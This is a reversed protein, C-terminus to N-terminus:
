NLSFYDYILTNVLRFIIEILSHTSLIIFNVQNQEEAQLKQLFSLKFRPLTIGHDTIQSGHDSSANLLQLALYYFFVLLFHYLGLYYM